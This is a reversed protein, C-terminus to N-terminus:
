ASGSSCLRLNLDVVDDGRPSHKGPCNGFDIGRRDDREEDVLIVDGGEALWLDELRLVQDLSVEAEWPRRPLGSCPWSIMVSSPPCSFVPTTMRTLLFSAVGVIEPSRDSM